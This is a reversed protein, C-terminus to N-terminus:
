LTGTRFPSLYERIYNYHLELPFEFVMPVGAVETMGYPNHYPSPGGLSLPPLAGSKLEITLTYNETDFGYVSRSREDAQQTWFEAKLDGLRAVAEEVGFPNIMDAAGQAVRWDGPGSRVLKRTTGKQVVTVSVVDDVKFDWIRRDKFQRASRPLRLFDAPAITKVADEDLRHVYVVGNTGVGFRASVTRNTGAQTAVSVTYELLPQDLGYPKFDTVVAKELETNDSTLIAFADSLLAADATLTEHGVIRWGGGAVAEIKAGAQGSYTVEVARIAAPAADIIRRDLFDKPLGRWAEMTDLPVLLISDEGPRRVHVLPPDNTTSAGFLLGRGLNTGAGALVELGPSQLGFPQLDAPAEAVFRHIFNTRWSAIAAHIRANDARANWPSTMRWATNTDTRQLDVTGTASRIQLHTTDDFPGPFIRRSRWAAPDGPIYRLLGPPVLYIDGSGAQRIFIQDGAASNTGVLLQLV